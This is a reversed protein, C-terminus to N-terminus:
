KLGTPFGAGGRGRLESAKVEAVVWEPEGRELVGALGQYGGCEIYNYIRIPDVKESRSIITRVQQKFFPIDQQREITVGTGLEKWLLEDVVSDNLVADIIMSVDKPNVKPYFTGRPEVLISPEMECFGHCGTIRINIKDTLEKSLLERKAIRILDNAGSAQGCTGAPIILTPIGIPQDATLQQHLDRFEEISTLRRM